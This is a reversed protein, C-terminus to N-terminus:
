APDFWKTDGRKLSTTPFKTIPDMIWQARARQWQEFEQALWPLLKTLNDTPPEDVFSISGGIFRFQCDQQSACIEPYYASNPDNPDSFVVIRPLFNLGFEFHQKENSVKRMSEVTERGRTPNLNALRVPIYEVYNPHKAWEASGLSFTPAGVTLLMLGESGLDASAAEANVNTSLENTGRIYLTAEYEVEWVASPHVRKGNFELEAEIRYRVTTDPFIVFTIYLTLGSLGIASLLLLYLFRKM